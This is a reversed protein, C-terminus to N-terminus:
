AKENSKNGEAFEEVKKLIYDRDKDTFEIFQKIANEFEERENKTNLGDVSTDEKIKRYCEALTKLGNPHIFVDQMGAIFAKADKFPINVRHPEIPTYTINGDITIRVKNFEVHQTVAAAGNDFTFEVKRYCKVDFDLSIDKGPNMDEILKKADNLNM